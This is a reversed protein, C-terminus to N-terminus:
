LAQKVTYSYHELLYQPLLCVKSRYPTSLLKAIFQREVAPMLRVGSALWLQVTEVNVNRM